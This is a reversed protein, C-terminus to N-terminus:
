LDGWLGPLASFDYAGIYTKANDYQEKTVCFTGEFNPTHGPSSGHDRGDNFVHQLYLAPNAYDVKDSDAYAPQLFLPSPSGSSHGILERIAIGYRDVHTPGEEAGTHGHYEETGAVNDALRVWTHGIGRGDIIIQRALTAGPGSYSIGTKDVFVTITYCCGDHKVQAGTSGIGGGSGGGGFFGFADQENVVDNNCSCYLNEGGSENIPDRSVWRGLGPAYYRYGYGDTHRELLMKGSVGRLALNDRTEM